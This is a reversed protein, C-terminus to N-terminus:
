ATMTQSQNLNHMICSLVTCSLMVAGTRIFHLKYGYVHLFDFWSEIAIQQGHLDVLQVSAHICTCKSNCMILLGAQMIQAHAGIYSYAPM